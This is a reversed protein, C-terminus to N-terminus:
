TILSSRERECRFNRCAFGASATHRQLSGSFSIHHWGPADLGLGVWELERPFECLNPQLFGSRFNCRCIRNGAFDTPLSRIPWGTIALRSIYLSLPKGYPVPDYVHPLFVQFRESWATLPVYTRTFALPITDPVYLDTKIPLFGGELPIEFVDLRHGNPLLSLCDDVSGSDISPVNVAKPRVIFFCPPLGSRGPEQAISLDPAAKVRMKWKAYDSPPSLYHRIGTWLTVALCVFIFDKWGRSRLYGKLRM